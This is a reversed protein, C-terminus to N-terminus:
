TVCFACKQLEANFRELDLVPLDNARTDGPLYILSSTKPSKLSVVTCLMIQSRLQEGDTIITCIKSERWAGSCRNNKFKGIATASLM